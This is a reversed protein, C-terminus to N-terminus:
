FLVHPGGVGRSIHCFEKYQVKIALRQPPYRNTKRRHGGFFADQGPIKAEPLTELVFTTRALFNPFCPSPLVGAVIPSYIDTSPHRNPWEQLLKPIYTLQLTDTRGKPAPNSFTCKRSYVNTNSICQWCKPFIHWNSPHRHARWARTQLIHM